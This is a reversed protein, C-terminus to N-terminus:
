TKLSIRRMNDAAMMLFNAADACEKVCRGIRQRLLYKCTDCSCAELLGYAISAEVLEGAARSLLWEIDRDEWGDKHDNDRLQEEMYQAFQQLPLRLKVEETM